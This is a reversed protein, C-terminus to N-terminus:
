LMWAGVYAGGAGTEGGFGRVGTGWGEEGRGEGEGSGALGAGAGVCWVVYSFEGGLRDVAIRGMCGNMWVTMPGSGRKSCQFRLPLVRRSGTGDRWIRGDDGVWQVAWGGLVVVGTGGVYKLRRIM